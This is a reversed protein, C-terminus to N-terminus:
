APQVLIEEASFPFCLLLLMVPPMLMLLLIVLFLSIKAGLVGLLSRRNRYKAPAAYRQKVFHASDYAIGLDAISHFPTVIQNFPGVEPEPDGFFLLLITALGVPIFYLFLHVNIGNLYFLLLCVIFLLAAIPRTWPRLRSSQWSVTSNSDLLLLLRQLYDWDEKSLTSAANESYYSLELSVHYIAQDASIYNDLQCKEFDAADAKGNLYRRILTELQNRRERDIM